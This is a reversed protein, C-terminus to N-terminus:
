NVKYYTSNILNIDKKSLFNSIIGDFDYISDNRKFLYGDLYPHKIFNGKMVFQFEEPSSLLRIRTDNVNIM